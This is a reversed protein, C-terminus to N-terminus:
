LINYFYINFRKKNIVMQRNYRFGNEVLKTIFKDIILNFHIEDREEISIDFSFSSQGNLAVKEAMIIMRDYESHVIYDIRENIDVSKYMKYLRIADKEKEKKFLKIM